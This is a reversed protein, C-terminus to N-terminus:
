CGSKMTPIAKWVLEVFDGPPIKLASAIKMVSELSPSKIGLELESIYKRQLGAEFGLQEQTMEVDKRLRRLVTGFAIAITNM